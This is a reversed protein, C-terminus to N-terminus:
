NSQYIFLYAFLYILMGFFSKSSPKTLQSLYIQSLMFKETLSNQNNTNEFNIDSNDSQNSNEANVTGIFFDECDSLSDDQAANDM